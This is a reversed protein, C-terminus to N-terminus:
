SMNDIFGLVADAFVDNKDGAVMHRAGSVDAIQAHPVLKVFAAVDDEGVLESERGRVLMLPMKLHQVADTLQREITERQDMKIRNELFAPDWHWRYRGDQGLRLNKALGSLDKPRPRHPLYAAIADGAEELSAFGEKSRSGMFGLIKAVGDLKVTPTIDVLVLGALLNREIEGALIMAAMGGLSAGIVVPLCGHGKSVQNIVAGLDKAFDDFQYHGQGSWDSDGHGRQDFTIVVHGKQALKQATAKWSHRTQGGGHLMIIVYDGATCKVTRAKARAEDDVSFLTGALVNGEHGIYSIDM